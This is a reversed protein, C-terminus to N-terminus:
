IMKLSNKRPRNCCSIELLLLCSLSFLYDSVLLYAVYIFIPNLVGYFFIIIIFFVAYLVTITFLTIIIGNTTAAFFLVTHTKCCSCSSFCSRIFYPWYWCWMQLFFAMSKIKSKIMVLLYQWSVM